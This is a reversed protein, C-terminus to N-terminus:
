DVVAIADMEILMGKLALQVGVLTSAPFDKKFYDKRVEAVKERDELNKLFVTVKVVDDLTAGAKRLVAEINEIAKKTQSVIDGKGVVEGNADIAGQGSVFVLKKGRAEIGQSFTWGKQPDPHWIGDPSLVKKAM